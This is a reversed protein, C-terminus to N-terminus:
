EEKNSVLRPQLSIRGLRAWGKGRLLAPFGGWPHGTVRSSASTHMSVLRKADLMPLENLDPISFGLDILSQKLVYFHTPSLAKAPYTEVLAWGGLQDTIDIVSLPMDPVSAM